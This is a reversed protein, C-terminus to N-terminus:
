NQLKRAFEVFFQLSQPNGLAGVSVAKEVPTGLFIKKIPVELKKGSLTRPVEAIPIIEDPVHHPTLHARLQARIREKLANDCEIPKM